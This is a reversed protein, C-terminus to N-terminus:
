PVPVVAGASVLSSTIAPSLSANVIPILFPASIADTVSPNKLFSMIFIGKGGSALAILSLAISHPSCALTSSIISVRFRAASSAECFADGIKTSAMVLILMLSPNSIKRPESVAAVWYRILVVETGKNSANRGTTFSAIAVTSSVFYQFGTAVLYLWAALSVPLGSILGSRSLYTASRAM